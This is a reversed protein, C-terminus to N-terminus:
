LSAGPSPIQGPMHWDFIAAGLALARERPVGLHFLVDAILDAPASRVGALNIRVRLDRAEGDVAGEDSARLLAAAFHGAGAVDSHYLDPLIKLSTM